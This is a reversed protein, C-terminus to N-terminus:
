NPNVNALYICLEPTEFPNRESSALRFLYKYPLRSGPYSCPYLEFMVNLRVPVGFSDGGIGRYGALLGSLPKERWNSDTYIM